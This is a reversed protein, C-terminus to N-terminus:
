RNAVKSFLDVLKDTRKNQIANVIYKKYISGTIRKFAEQLETELKSFINSELFQCFSVMRHSQYNPLFNDLLLEVAEEVNFVKSKDSECETEFAYFSQNFGRFLFYEKILSDVYPLMDM